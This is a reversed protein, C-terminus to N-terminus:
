KRISLEIIHPDPGYNWTGFVPMDNKVDSLRDYRPVISSKSLQFNLLHKKSSNNQYLICQSLDLQKYGSGVQIAPNNNKVLLDKGNLNAQYITRLGM